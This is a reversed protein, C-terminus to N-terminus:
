IQRISCIVVARAGTRDDAIIINATAEPNDIAPYGTHRDEDRWIIETQSAGVVKENRQISTEFSIEERSEQLRVFLREAQLGPVVAEGLWQGGSQVLKIKTLISAHLSTKTRCEAEFVTARAWSAFSLVLFLVAIASM